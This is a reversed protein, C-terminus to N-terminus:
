IAYIKKFEQKKCHKRLDMKRCKKCCWQEEYIKFINLELLYRKKHLFCKNRCKFCPISIHNPKLIKGKKIKSVKEFFQLLTKPMKPIFGPNNIWQYKTGDILKSPPLVSQHGCGRFEIGRFVVKRLKPDPTLFLHHVSRASEYRPHEYDGIIENIMTNASPTDGEVDVIKGLLIGINCHPNAVLIKRCSNQNYYGNWRKLVPVKTGPSLPIVPIGTEILAEFSEIIQSM